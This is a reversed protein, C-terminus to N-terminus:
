KNEKTDKIEEYEVTEADWNVKQNINKSKASNESAKRQSPQQPPFNRYFNNFFLRKLTNWVFFTIITILIIELIFKM